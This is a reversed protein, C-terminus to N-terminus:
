LSQSFTKARYYKHNLPSGSIGDSIIIMDLKGEKSLEELSPILSKNKPLISEDLEIKKFDEGGVYRIGKRTNKIIAGTDSEINAKINNLIDYKSFYINPAEARNTLEVLSEYITQKVSKEKM